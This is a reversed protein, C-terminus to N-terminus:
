PWPVPRGLLELYGRRLQAWSQNRERRLVWLAQGIPDDGARPDDARDDATVHPGPARRDQASLRLLRTAAHQQQCFTGGPRLAAFIAACLETLQQDNLFEALGTSTVFDVPGPYSAPSLAAGQHVLFPNLGGPQACLNAQELVEPDPDLGHFKVRQLGAGRERVLAAGEVLERPMGCPVSLVLLTM